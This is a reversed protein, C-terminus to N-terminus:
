LIIYLLVWLGSPLLVLISRLLKEPLPRSTGTSEKQSLTMRGAEEETGPRREPAGPVFFSPLLYLATMLPVVFLATNSFCIGSLGALFLGTWGMNEEEGRFVCLAFTFIATTYLYAVVSKGEFTRFVFYQSIGSTSFTMMLIVVATISFLLKKGADNKFLLGGAKYLLAGFVYVLTMTMTLGEEVLPHLNLAQFVAASHNTYTNLLYYHSPAEMLTGTFPDSLEITGSYVSSVPLGLYYGADFGSYHNINLALIVGLATLFLIYVALSLGGGKRTFVARVAAGLEKRRLLLAAACLLGAAAIWTLTLIKLPARCLKMPLATLQFLSFYLFFGCLFMSLLSNRHVKGPLLAGTLTFGTLYAAILLVAKVITLAGM